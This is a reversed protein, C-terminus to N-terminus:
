HSVHFHALYLSFIVPLLVCVNFTERFVPWSLFGHYFGALKRMNFIHQDPSQNTKVSRPMLTQFHVRHGTLLQEMFTLHRHRKMICRCKCPGNQFCITELVKNMKPSPIKRGRFLQKNVSIHVRTVDWIKVFMLWNKQTSNALLFFSLPKLFLTELM